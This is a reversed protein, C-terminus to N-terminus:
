PQEGFRVTVLRDVEVNDVTQMTGGPWLIELSVPTGHTGLGFHLVLDNQNGEGTGAAVQRTLTMGELRIRVQAGIASRNLAAGDGQVRVKLWHNGRGGNVFLKGATALDLDGDNDFDSWAAQYTPPLGAVQAAASADSFVFDGDNRFLVPHNKRGFSATGYVTTFFLDLDGDNDYDGAAPSAYSEQYFVGCTGRDEFTYGAGAGLNRLFRSKPQDGRHDVHAFNGAFLDMRGDNDFDGWAAGISHGGDFGASSAVANRAAAVDELAGSGDNLWLVNPQLRYNSVYIDADGDEDFDCATVGRARYRADTWAVTFGVGGDNLLVMDPYTIGANWDEYGGVYLDVFGDGNLDAWCAGRSVCPPLEPMAIPTFGAGGDNRYAQLSSWSFLDVFGDNDFDAAVVTGVGDTLRTFGQGANNRWIVGGACLDTWGDNDVDVWCAASNHLELGLEATRDTFVGEPQAAGVGAGLALSVAGCLVLRAAASVGSSWTSRSM